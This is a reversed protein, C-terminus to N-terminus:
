RIREQNAYRYDFQTLDSRCPGPTDVTFSRTTIPDYARRHAVAAKVVIVSLTEPDIGQSVWQGLDFPPTKRSTLLILLGHHRVVACPGMEYRDGSMSALHSQKDLLEFCGDSTSVLEVDLNLPGEDFRSGKGGISIQKRTSPTLTKLLDVASPDNICIAADSVSNAVLARLLGTTDGPAGGGINDSPEVLVTLGPVPERLLRSMVQEVPEDVSPATADFMRARTVLEDLLRDAEEQQTTVVQFSVGTAPTDAFAFGATVNAAWISDRRQEARRAMSELTRMPEDATGTATPAWVVGASRHALLPQQGTDFHRKLIRAAVIAAERADTHPNCRYAVLGSAHSAMRQSFNAHLDYVGFVPKHKERPLARIRSLIEGEVDLLSQSVMAGHLVLYVADVHDDYSAKFDRWFADIVEDRVTGSPLARYDPGPAVDFGWSQFAAIAGGMPSSDGSCSLLEEGCRVQFDELRTETDLFTHTEHFLGALFIKPM